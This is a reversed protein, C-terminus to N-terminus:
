LLGAKVLATWYIGERFRVEYWGWGEWPNGTLLIKKFQAQIENWM